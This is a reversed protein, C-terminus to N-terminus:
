LSSACYDLLWGFLWGFLWVHCFLDDGDDACCAALAAADDGGEEGIGGVGDAGYGAVGEAFLGAGERGAADFDYGCVEVVAGGEDGSEFYGEGGREGEEGM